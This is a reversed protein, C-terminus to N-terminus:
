FACLYTCTARSWRPLTKPDIYSRPHAGARVTSKLAESSDFCQAPAGLTEHTPLTEHLIIELALEAQLVIRPLSRQASPARFLLSTFLVSNYCLPLPVCPNGPRTGTARLM